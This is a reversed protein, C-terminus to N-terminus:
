LCQGAEKSLLKCPESLAGAVKSNEPHFELAGTECNLVFSGQSHDKKLTTETNGIRIVVGSCITGKITIRQRCAYRLGGIRDREDTGPIVNFSSLAKLADNYEEQLELFDDNESLIGFRRQWGEVAAKTQHVTKLLKLYKAYRDPMTAAALTSNPSSLTDIDNAIISGGSFVDCSVIRAQGQCIIDGLARLEGYYAERGILIRGKVSLYGHDIIPVTVDGEVEVHSEDAFIGGSIALNGSCTVCASEVSGGISLDGGTTVKFGPKISGRVEVAAKSHINGTEFNVDGSISLKTTVKISSQSVVSLVGDCAAHLEGTEETYVVNETNKIVLEKGISQPIEKGFIDVGPLGTTAAIKTALLQGKTVPIFFRREHFDIRGDGMEKGVHTAAEVDIRLRANEGNVPLRGRAVVVDKVPLRENLVTDLASIINKERIGSRVGTQHLMKLLTASDIPSDGSIMPYLSMKAMWCDDDVTILPEIDVIYQIPKLEKRTVLHPYGPVKAMLVNKEADLEVGEGPVLVIKTADSSATGTLGTAESMAIAVLETGAPVLQAITITQRSDGAGFTLSETRFRIDVKAV